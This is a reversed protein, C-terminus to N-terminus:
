PLARGQGRGDRIASGRSLRVLPAVILRGCRWAFLLSAFMM